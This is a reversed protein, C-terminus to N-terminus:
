KMAKYERKSIKTHNHIRAHFTEASQALNLFTNENFRNGNYFQEFLLNFAPKLLGYKAFWNKIIQPFKERILRYSFLMELDFQPKDNEKFNSTSIYLEINKRYPKIDPLEEKHREGRLIISLPYTSRYLALILLNQFSFVYSLLDKISKEPKTDVQFQVRQRISVSKQYRFLGPQNAVFNFKGSSQNDIEFDISEPLKYEVSIEHRKIKEFDPRLNIFGSKGVWEDLNFIEASIHDFMLEDPSNVH